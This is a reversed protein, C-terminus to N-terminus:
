PLVEGLAVRPLLKLPAPLGPAMLLRPHLAARALDEEAAAGIRVTEM